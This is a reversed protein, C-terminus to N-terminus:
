FLELQEEQKPDDVYLCVMCIKGIASDRVQQETGLLKFEANYFMVAAIVGCHDCDTIAVYRKAALNSM